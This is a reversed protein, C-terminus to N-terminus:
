YNSRMIDDEALSKEENPLDISASYNYDNLEEVNPNTAPQYDQVIDSTSDIKTPQPRPMLNLELYM